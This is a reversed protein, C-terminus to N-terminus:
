APAEVVQALTPVGYLAKMHENLQALRRLDNDNLSSGESVIRLEWNYGKSNKELKVVEKQEFINQQPRIEAGEM